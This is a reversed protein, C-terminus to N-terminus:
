CAHALCANCQLEVMACRLKFIWSLVSSTPTSSHCLYHLPYITFTELLTVGLLLHQPHFLLVFM